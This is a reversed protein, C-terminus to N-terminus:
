GGGLIAGSRPDGRPNSLFVVYGQSAYLHRFMAAKSPGDAVPGAFAKVFLDMKAGVGTLDPQVFVAHQKDM